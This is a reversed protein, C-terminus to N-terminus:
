KSPAVTQLVAALLMAPAFGARGVLNSGFELLTFRDPSPHQKSFLYLKVAQPELGSSEAESFTTYPAAM